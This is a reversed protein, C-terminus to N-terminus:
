LVAGCVMDAYLLLVSRRLLFPLLVTNLIILIDELNVSACLYNVCFGSVVGFAFM